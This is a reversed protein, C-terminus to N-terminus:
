IEVESNIKNTEIQRLKELTLTDLNFVGKKVKKNEGAITTTITYKKTLFNISTNKAEDTAQNYFEIETGILRFSNNEFRFKYKFISHSSPGYYKTININLENKSFKIEGLNDLDNNDLTIFENNDFIKLYRNNQKDFLSFSITYNIYNNSEIKEIKILDKFNDNNFDYKISDININNANVANSIFLIIYILKLKM